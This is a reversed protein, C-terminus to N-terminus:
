LRYSIHFEFPLLQAVPQHWLQWLQPQAKSKPVWSYEIIQVKFSEVSKGCWCCWLQHDLPWHVFTLSSQFCSCISSIMRRSWASSISLSLQTNTHPLYLHFVWLSLFSLFFLLLLPFCFSLSLYLPLLCHSSKHSRRNNHVTHLCPSCYYIIRKSGFCQLSFYVAQCSWSVCVHVTCAHTEMLVLDSHDCLWILCLHKFLDVWKSNKM